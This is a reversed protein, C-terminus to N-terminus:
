IAHTQEIFLKLASKTSRNRRVRMQTDSFFKFKKALYTIKNTMVTKLTKDLTNLLAIFKYIKLISYNSKDSKKLTISHTERFVRLYYELTVCAQFLSTLVSILKQSCTKLIKNTIDNSKSIKDFKSRTLTKRMKEITIILSCAHKTFYTYSQLDSLDTESFTSFFFNRLM